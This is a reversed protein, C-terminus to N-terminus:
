SPTKLYAILDARQQPNKMGAYSMKTGPMFKRPNELYTFLNDETWVVGSNKNATSYTYGPVQGATRGVIQHLSPGVRNVGADRVHCTRCQAFLKQGSTANGTLGALQLTASGAAAAAAAPAAAPATAAADTGAADAAPAEATSAAPTEVPAAAPAAAPAEATESKKEGGGCAALALSLAAVSTMVLSRSM